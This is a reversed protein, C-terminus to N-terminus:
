RDAVVFSRVFSHIFKRNGIVCPRKGYILTTQVVLALSTHRVHDLRTIAVVFRPAAASTSFSREAARVYGRGFALSVAPFAVVAGEFAVFMESKLDVFDNRLYRTVSVLIAM